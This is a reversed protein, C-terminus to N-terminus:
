RLGEMCISRYYRLILGRGGGEVDKRIWLESIVGEISAIYDSDHFFDSFLSCFFIETWTFVLVNVTWSPM